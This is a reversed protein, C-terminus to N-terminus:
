GAQLDDVAGAPAPPGPRRASSSVDVKGARRRPLTLDSWTVRPHLRWAATAGGPPGRPGLPGLVHHLSVRASAGDAGPRCFPVAIVGGAIAM